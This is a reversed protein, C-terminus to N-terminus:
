LEGKLIRISDELRQNKAAELRHWLSVLHRLEVSAEFPVALSECDKTEAAGTEKVAKAIAECAAGIVSQAAKAVTEQEETEKIQARVAQRRERFEDKLDPKSRVPGTHEGRALAAKQDQFAAIAQDVGWRSEAERLEALKAVAEKLTKRDKDSGLRGALHRRFLERITEPRSHTYQSGPVGPRFAEPNFAM